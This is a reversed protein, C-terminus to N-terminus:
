LQRGLDAPYHQNNVEVRDGEQVSTVHRCLPCTLKDESKQKFVRALCKLCFTHGCLLQKPDDLHDYCIACTLNDVILTDM